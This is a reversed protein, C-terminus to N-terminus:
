VRTYLGQQEALAILLATTTVIFETATESTRHLLIQAAPPLLGAACLDCTVFPGAVSIKRPLLLTASLPLEPDGTAARLAAAISPGAVYSDLPIDAAADVPISVWIPNMAAIFILRQATHQYALTAPVFLRLDRLPESEVAIFARTEPMLLTNLIITQLIPVIPLRRRAVMLSYLPALLTRNGSACIQNAVLIIEGMAATYDALIPATADDALM